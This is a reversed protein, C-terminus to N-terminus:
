KVKEYQTKILTTVDLPIKWSQNLILCVASQHPLSNFDGGVVISFDEIELNLLEAHKFIMKSIQKLLYFTQAYKLYDMVPHFYLQSNIAVLHKGSYNHKLLIMLAKNNKAHLSQGKMALDNYDIIQEDLITFVSSKFAIILCDRDTKRWAFCLHYGMEELFPRYM